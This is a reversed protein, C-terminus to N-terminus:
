VLTREGSRTVAVVGVITRVMTTASSTIRASPMIVM